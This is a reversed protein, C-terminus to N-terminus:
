KVILLSSNMSSNGFSPLSAQLMGMSNKLTNASLREAISFASSTSSQFLETKLDSRWVPSANSRETTISQTSYASSSLISWRTQSFKSIRAKAEHLDLSEQYDKEVNDVEYLFTISNDPEVTFELDHKGEYITVRVEGALGPFADTKSLGLNLATRNLDIAISIIQEQFEMGEHYSWGKQLLKFSQIKRETENGGYLPQIFRLPSGTNRRPITLIKKM